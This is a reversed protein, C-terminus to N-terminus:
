AVYFFHFGGYLLSAFPDVRMFPLDTPRWLNTNSVLITIAIRFRSREIVFRIVGSISNYRGLM